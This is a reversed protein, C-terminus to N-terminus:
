VSSRRGRAWKVSNYEAMWHEDQKTRLLPLPLSDSMMEDAYDFLNTSDKEDSAFWGKSSCELSPLLPLSRIITAINSKYVNLFSHTYWQKFGSSLACLIAPLTPYVNPYSSNNDPSFVSDTSANAYFGAVNGTIHFM